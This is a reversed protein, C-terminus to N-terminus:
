KDENSTTSNAPPNISPSNGDPMGGLELPNTVKITKSLSADSWKRSFYLLCLPTFYAMAESSNFERIELGAVKEVISILLWLTVVAFGILMMTFSVSEKGDSGKFLPVKM